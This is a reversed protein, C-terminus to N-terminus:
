HAIYKSVLKPVQQQARIGMRNTSDHGGMPKSCFQPTNGLTRNAKKWALRMPHFLPHSGM